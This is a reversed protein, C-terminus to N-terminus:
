QTLLRESWESLYLPICPCPILYLALFWLYFCHMEGCVYTLFLLDPLL